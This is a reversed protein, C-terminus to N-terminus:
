HIALDSLICTKQFTSFQRLKQTVDSPSGLAKTFYFKIQSSSTGGFYANRLRMDWAQIKDSRPTQGRKKAYVKKYNGSNVLQNISQNISQRKVLFLFPPLFILKTSSSSSPPIVM